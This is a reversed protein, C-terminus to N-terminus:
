CLMFGFPPHHAAAYGLDNSADHPRRSALKRLGQVYVEEM